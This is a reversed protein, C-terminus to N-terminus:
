FLESKLANLRKLGDQLEEIHISCNIIEQPDFPQIFMANKREAFAEALSRETALIDAQLQLEATKVRYSVEEKEKEESSQLLLESLKLSKEM